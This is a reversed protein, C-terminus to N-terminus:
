WFLSGKVGSTVDEFLAGRQLTDEWSCLRSGEIVYTALKDVAHRTLELM